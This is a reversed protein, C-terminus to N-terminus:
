PSTARLPTAASATHPPGSSTSNLHFETWQRNLKMCDRREGNRPPLLQRKLPGLVQAPTKRPSGPSRPEQDLMHTLRMERRLMSCEQHDRHLTDQESAPM